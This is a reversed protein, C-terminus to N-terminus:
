VTHQPLARIGAGIMICDFPHTSLATLVAAEATAGLDVLCQHVEYGLTSLRQQADTGAGRVQQANRGGSPSFDILAPDIGILLVRRTTMTNSRTNGPSGISAGRM